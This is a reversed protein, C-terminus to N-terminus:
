AQDKENMKGKGAKKPSILLPGHDMKKWTCGKRKRREQRERQRPMLVLVPTGLLCCLLPKSIILALAGYFHPLAM